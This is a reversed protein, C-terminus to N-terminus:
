SRPRAGRTSRRSSPTRTNSSTPSARCPAEIVLRVERREANIGSRLYELASDAPLAREAFRAATSVVLDGIRDTRFVRWDDRDLDWCLLCWRQHLHVQRHPEARRSSENGDADRYSFAVVQRNAIAEGLDALAGAEVSPAAHAGTELSARLRAVRPRLRAPLFQDLKGYARNAADDLTGPEGSGFVRDPDPWM